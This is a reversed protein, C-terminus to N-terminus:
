GNLFLSGPQASEKLKSNSPRANRHRSNDIQLIRNSATATKKVRSFCSHEFPSLHSISSNAGIGPSSSHALLSNKNSSLLYRLNKTPEFPREQQFSKPLQLGEVQTWEDCVSPDHQPSLGLEVRNKPTPMNLDVASSNHTGLRDSLGLPPFKLLTTGLAKTVPDRRGTDDEQLSNKATYHKLREISLPVEIRNPKEEFDDDSDFPQHSSIGSSTERRPIHCTKVEFEFILEKLRAILDETSIFSAPAQVIGKLKALLQNQNLSYRSKDEVVRKFSDDAHRLLEAARDIQQEFCHQSKLYAEAPTLPQDSKMRTQKRKRAANILNNSTGILEITDQSQLEQPM